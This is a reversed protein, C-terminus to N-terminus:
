LAAIATKPSNEGRPLPTIAEVRHQIRRPRAPDQEAGGVPGELFVL